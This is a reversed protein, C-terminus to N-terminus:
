TEFGLRFRLFCSNGSYFLSPKPISIAVGLGLHLCTNSNVYAEIETHIEPDVGWCDGPVEGLREERFRSRPPREKEVRLRLV